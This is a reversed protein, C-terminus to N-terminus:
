RGSITTESVNRIDLTTSVVLYEANVDSEPHDTLFFTRGTKLGLLNGRGRLRENRSFLAHARVGALYHAEELYNNPQGSLGTAGALPQ